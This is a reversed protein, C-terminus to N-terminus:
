QRIAHLFLSMGITTECFQEEAVEGALNAGMLASCPIELIESWWARKLLVSTIYIVFETEHLNFINQITNLILTNCQLETWETIHSLQRKVWMHFVTARGCWKLLLLTQPWLVLKVGDSKISTGIGLCSLSRDHLLKYREDPISFTHDYWRYWCYFLFCFIGWQRFLELTWNCFRLFLPLISVWLVGICSRESEQRPIPV